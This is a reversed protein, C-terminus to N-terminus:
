TMTRIAPDKGAAFLWPHWLLAHDAWYCEVDDSMSQGWECYPFDCAVRGGLESWTTQFLEM